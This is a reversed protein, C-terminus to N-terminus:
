QRTEGFALARYDELQGRGHALLLGLVRQQLFYLAALKHIIGAPLAVFTLM